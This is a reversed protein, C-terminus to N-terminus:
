VSPLLGDAKKAFKADEEAKVLRNMSEIANQPYVRPPFGLECMSRIDATTSEIIVETKEKHVYATFKDGNQHLSCWKSTVNHLIIYALIKALDRSSTCDM